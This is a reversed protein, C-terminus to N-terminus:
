LLAFLSIASAWTRAALEAEGEACSSPALYDKAMGYYAYVCVVDALSFCAAVTQLHRMFWIFLVHGASPGEALLQAVDKAHRSFGRVVRAPLNPDDIDDDGVATAAM